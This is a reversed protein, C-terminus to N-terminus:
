KYIFKHTAYGIPLDQNQGTLWEVLWFWFSGGGSVGGGSAAGAGATPPPMSPCAPSSVSTLASWANSFECDANHKCGTVLTRGSTLGNQIAAVAVAADAAGLGGWVTFANTPNQPVFADGYGPSIGVVNARSAIAPGLQNLATQILQAGGSFGYLTFRGPGQAALSSIAGRVKALSSGFGFAALQISLVSQGLDQGAFPFIANGSLSDAFASEVQSSAQTSGGVVLNGCFGLSDVAQTPMGSVYGYRNFTQPNQPNMAASGAPDPTWWRGQLPNYERAPFDYQGGSHATDIDQKKGTFSQYGAGASTEDWGFPAYIDSSVVHGSTDSSLRASGLGDAHRYYQLLGSPGYVATAGGPLPVDARVLAQGSMVALKSGGPGYLFEHGGSEVARGLADFTVAAGELTVPKGEADFSNTQSPLLPDNLLNGQLDYNVGANSIHNHLDFTFSTVIGSPGSTTNHNGFADFSFKQDDAAGCNAEQLRGMDDHYYTCAYGNDRAGPVTNAISLSKM